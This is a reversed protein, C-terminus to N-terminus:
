MEKVGHVSFTMPEIGMSVLTRKQMEPNRKANTTQAELPNLPHATSDMITGRNQGKRREMEYMCHAYSPGLLVSQMLM